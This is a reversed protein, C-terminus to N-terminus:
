YLYGSCRVSNRTRFCTLTRKGNVLRDQSRPSWSGYILIPTITGRGGATDFSVNRYTGPIYQSAASCRSCVGMEHLSDFRTDIDGTFRRVPSSLFISILTVQLHMELFRHVPRTDHLTQERGDGTRCLGFKTPQSRMPYKM